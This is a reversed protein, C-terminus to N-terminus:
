AKKLISFLIKSLENSVDTSSQAIKVIIKTPVAVRIGDLTYWVKTSTLRKLLELLLLSAFAPFGIAM